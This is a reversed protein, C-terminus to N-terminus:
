RIINHLVGNNNRREYVYGNKDFNHSYGINNIEAEYKKDNLTYILKGAGQLPTDSKNTMTLYVSFGKNSQTNYEVKEISVKVVDNEFAEGLKLVPIEKAEHVDDLSTTVNIVNNIEDVSMIGGFSEIITKMPIMTTGQIIEAKSELLIDKGDLKGMMSNMPFIFKHSDSSLTIVQNNPDFDVTLKMSESISRLPAFFLNNMKIIPNIMVVKEGNSVLQYSKSAKQTIPTDSSPLTPSPTPAPTFTPGPSLTPPTPTAFVKLIGIEVQKLDKNWEVKVNLVDGISKLPLYTTGQYNLAPLSDSKFEQGNVMIPYGIKTLVYEKIDKAFVNTSVTLACRLIFAVVIKKLGLM